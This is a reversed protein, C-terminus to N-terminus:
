RTEANVEGEMEEDDILVLRPAGMRAVAYDWAMAISHLESRPADQEIAAAM